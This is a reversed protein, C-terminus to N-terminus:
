LVLFRAFYREIKMWAAEDTGRTLVGVHGDPWIVVIGGSEIDVDWKQHLPHLLIGAASFTAPPTEQLHLPM